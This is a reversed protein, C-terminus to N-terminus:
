GKGDAEEGRAGAGRGEEVHFNIKKKRVSSTAM